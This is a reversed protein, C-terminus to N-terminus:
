NEYTVALTVKNNDQMHSSIDYMYLKYDIHSRYIDNNLSQHTINKM